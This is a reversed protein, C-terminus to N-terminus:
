PIKEPRNVGVSAPAVATTTVMIMPKMRPVSFSASKGAISILEALTLPIMRGIMAKEAGRASANAIMPTGCPKTVETVDSVSSGQSNIRIIIPMRIAAPHTISVVGFM